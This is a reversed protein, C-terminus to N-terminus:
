NMVGKKTNTKYQKLLFINFKFDVRFIVGIKVGFIVGFEVGLSVAFEVGFSVRLEMGFFVWSEVGHKVVHGCKCEKGDCNFFNDSFSENSLKENKQCIQVFYPM